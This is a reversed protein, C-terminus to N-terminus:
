RVSVNGTDKYLLELMVDRVCMGVSSDRFIIERCLTGVKEELDGYASSEKKLSNYEDEITLRISQEIHM